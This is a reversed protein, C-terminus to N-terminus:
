REPRPGINGEMLEREKQASGELDHTYDAVAPARVTTNLRAVVCEARVAAAALVGGHHPRVGTAMGM